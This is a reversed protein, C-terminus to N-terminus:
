SNPSSQEWLSVPFNINSECTQPLMNEVGCKLIQNMPRLIHKVFLLRGLFLASFFRIHEMKTFISLGMWEKSTLYILHDTTNSANEEESAVHLAIRRLKKWATAVKPHMKSSISNTKKTRNQKKVFFLDVISFATTQTHLFM